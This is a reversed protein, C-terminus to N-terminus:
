DYEGCIVDTEFICEAILQNRETGKSGDLFEEGGYASVYSGIQDADYDNVNIEDQYWDSVFTRNNLTANKCLKTAKSMVDGIGHAMMPKGIESLILKTYFFNWEKLTLLTLERPWNLPIEYRQM